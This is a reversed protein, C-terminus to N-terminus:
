AHVAHYVQVIPLHEFLNVVRLVYSLEELLNKFIHFFFITSFFQQMSTHSVTPLNYEPEGHARDHQVCCYVQLPILIVHLLQLLQM